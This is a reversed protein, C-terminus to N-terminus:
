NYSLDVDIRGHAHLAVEGTANGLEYPGHSTIYSTRRTGNVEVRDLWQAPSKKLLLPATQELEDVSFLITSSSRPPSRLSRNEDFYASLAVKRRRGTGNELLVRLTISYDWYPDEPFRVQYLAQYQNLAGGAPHNLRAIHRSFLRTSEEGHLMRASVAHVYSWFAPDRDHRFVDKLVAALSNRQALQDQELQLLHQSKKFEDALVGTARYVGPIILANALLLAAWRTRDLFARRSLRTEAAPREAPIGRRRALELISHQRAQPARAAPIRNAM